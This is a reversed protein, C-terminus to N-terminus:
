TGDASWTSRSFEQRIESFPITGERVLILQDNKQRVITSPPLRELVGGDVVRDVADGFAELVDAASRAPPQNSINASTATIAGGSQRCIETAPACSSFRIGVTGTGATLLEPLEPRAPFILTLPGPWYRRILSEYGSPIEAAVQTLADISDILVLVPKASPRQKIQFLRQLAGANFPDVALGYSTETPIAVIGGNGIVAAAESSYDASALSLIKSRSRGRKKM